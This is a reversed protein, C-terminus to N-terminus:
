SLCSHTESVCSSDNIMDTTILLKTLRVALSNILFNYTNLKAIFILLLFIRLYPSCFQMELYLQNEEIFNILDKQIRPYMRFLNEVKCYIRSIICLSDKYFFKMKM